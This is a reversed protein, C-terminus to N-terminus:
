FTQGTVPKPSAAPNTMRMLVSFHQYNMTCFHTLQYSSAIALASCSETYIPGEGEPGVLMKMERLM